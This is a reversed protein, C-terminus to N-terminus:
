SEEDDLDFADWSADDTQIPTSPEPGLRRASCVPGNRMPSRRCRKPVSARVLAAAPTADWLVRRWGVSAPSFAEAQELFDYFVLLRGENPLATDFGAHASLDALNFQGLFSLSGTEGRGRAGTNRASCNVARADDM